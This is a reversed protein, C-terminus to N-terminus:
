KLKGELYNKLMDELNETFDFEDLGGKVSAEIYNIIENEVKEKESM